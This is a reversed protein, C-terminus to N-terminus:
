KINIKKGKKVIRKKYFILCGIAFIVFLVILTVKSYSDIYGAIKEWSAGFTAGLLVLVTNWIVTGVTTLILFMGLKMKTMGAPISILSRIIPIFRCFFVTLYGRKIFWDESKKVDEKKFGLIHGLKGDLIKELREKTLLRGISYLILAGLVSGITSFVIVGFVKMTSYTTMFGGFTLIVESPIPPFINEIAILLLIGVYGFQNMVNIIIEQM